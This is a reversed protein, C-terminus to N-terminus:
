QEVITPDTIVVFPGGAQNASAAFKVAQTQMEVTAAPSTTPDFLSGHSGATMTVYAPQGAAVANVGSKLKTMNAATILRDTASNPVVTDGRVKQLFLPKSGACACVHNIPDAPDMLTQVERFFQQFSAGNDPFSASAPNRAFAALVGARITSGFTPSDLLLKTFVGGPASATVTKLGANYKAQGAGAIAGLSLGVFHIRAPDIDSVNDGSVDLNVLSKTLVGIDVQGQRTADRATPPSTLITPLAHTGSADIKGDPGSAGTTNNVLDVNFTRENPAQYFPNATDTLGHLPLDIAAVLFCADAFGDAMALAQTRNGGLGHQVIVV